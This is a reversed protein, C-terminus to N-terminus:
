EPYYEAFSHDEYLVIMKVIRKKALIPQPRAMEGLPENVRSENVQPGANYSPKAGMMVPQPRGGEPGQSQPMPNPIQQLPHEIVQQHQYQMEVSQPQKEKHTEMVTTGSDKKPSSIPEVQSSEGLQSFLDYGGVAGKTEAVVGSDQVPELMSDSEKVPNQPVNLPLGAYMEGTGFMLWSINIEPWRKVVKMVFDLSPNNRGSLIHSMGSPQVGIEEAFQRATLNKAQLLLNIRDIM